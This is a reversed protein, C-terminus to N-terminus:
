GFSGRGARFVRPVGGPVAQGLAVGNQFATRLTKDSHGRFNSSGRHKASTQVREPWVVAIVSGCHCRGWSDEADRM